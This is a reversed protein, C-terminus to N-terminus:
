NTVPKEKTCPVLPCSSVRELEQDAEQIPERLVDASREPNRTLAIPAMVHRIQSEVDQFVASLLRADVQLTEKNTHEVTM